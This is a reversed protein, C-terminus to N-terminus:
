IGDFESIGLLHQNHQIFIESIQMKTSQHSGEVPLSLCTKAKVSM